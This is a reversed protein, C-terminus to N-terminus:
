VLLLLCLGPCGLLARRFRRRGSGIENLLEVVRAQFAIELSATTLWVDLLPVASARDPTSAPSRSACALAGGASGAPAGPTSVELAIADAVPHGEPSGGLRRLEYLASGVPRVDFKALEERAEEEAQARAAAKIGSPGNGGHWSCRGTGPHPTGRGAPAKSKGAGHRREAGCKPASNSSMSDADGSKITSEPERTVM